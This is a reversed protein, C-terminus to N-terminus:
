LFFREFDAYGAKKFASAVKRFSADFEPRLEIDLRQTKPLVGQQFETRAATPGGAQAADRKSTARGSGLRSGKAHLAAVREADETGGEPPTRARALADQLSVGGARRQYASSGAGDSRRYRVGRQVPVRFKMEIEDPGLPEIDEEVMTKRLRPHNRLSELHLLCPNAMVRPEADDADGPGRVAVEQTVPNVAVLKYDEGTVINRARLGPVLDLTVTAFDNQEELERYRYEQM